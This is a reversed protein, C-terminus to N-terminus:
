EEEDGKKFNSSHPALAPYVINKIDVTNSGMEKAIHEISYGEQHLTWIEKMRGM